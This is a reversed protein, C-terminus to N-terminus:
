REMTGLVLRADLGLVGDPTVLLPNVEVEALWPARAALHSLASVARAAAAVDLPPRGRAGDLLPACRLSRLLEEADEPDVPALAVAVDRFVEAYVGGLGVLLLPGFRPDRRMGVILEVGSELPAMREVSCGGAPLRRYAAELAEGDAIGLVVGAESKHESALAKLAVPYGLEEAAARAEAATRAARAEAMPVGAASVVERSAFYGEEAPPLADGAVSPIEHPAREANEALTALARM